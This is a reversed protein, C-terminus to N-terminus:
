GHFEGGAMTTIIFPGYWDLPSARGDEHDRDRFLVFIVHAQRVLLHRYVLGTRNVFIKFIM